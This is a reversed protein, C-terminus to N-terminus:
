GKLVETPSASRLNMRGANRQSDSVRRKGKRLLVQDANLKYEFGAGVKEAPQVGLKEIRRIMYPDDTFVIWEDHNDGTMSLCTEREDPQLVM